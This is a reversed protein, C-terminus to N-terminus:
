HVIRLRKKIDSAIKDLKEQIEEPTLSKKGKLRDELKKLGKDANIFAKKSNESIAKILLKEAEDRDITENEDIQELGHDTAILNWISAGIKKDEVGDRLDANIAILKAKTTAIQTFFNDIETM